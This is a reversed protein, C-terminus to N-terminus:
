AKAPHLELVVRVMGADDSAERQFGLSQALSLMPQNDKLV